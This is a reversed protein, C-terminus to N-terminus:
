RLVYDGIEYNTLVYPNLDIESISDVPQDTDSTKVLRIYNEQDLPDMIWKNAMFIPQVLKVKM